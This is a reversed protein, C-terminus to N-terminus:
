HYRGRRHKRGTGFSFWRVEDSVRLQCREKNWVRRFFFFLFKSKQAPRLRAVSFLVGGGVGGGVRYGVRPRERDTEAKIAEGVPSPIIAVCLRLLVVSIKKGM